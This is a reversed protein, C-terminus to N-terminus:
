LGTDVCQPEEHLVGNGDHYRLMRVSLRTLTSFEGIRILRTETM